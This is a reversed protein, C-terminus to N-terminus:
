ASWAFSNTIIRWPDVNDAGRPGSLTITILTGNKWFQYREVELPTSKGTTPNPASTVIYRVRIASGAKRRVTTARGINRAGERRLRPADTARVARTTPATAAGARDVRISNFQDTFLSSAGSASQAWGEPVKISYGGAVPTYQVYVQTDPIDGAPNVDAAPTSRTSRQSAAGAVAGSVSLVLVGAAVLAGLIPVIRSRMM